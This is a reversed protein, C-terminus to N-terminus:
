FDELPMGLRLMVPRCEQAIAHKTEESFEAAREARISPPEGNSHIDHIGVAALSKVATEEPSVTFSAYEITAQRHSPVTELGDLCDGVQRTWHRAAVVARSVGEEQAYTEVTRGDWWLSMGQFFQVKLLSEIVRGPHRVVHHFAARPFAHALAEVRATNLTNKLVVTGARQNSLRLQQMRRNLAGPNLDHADTAVLRRKLIRQNEASIGVEELLRQAEGSPRTYRIPVSPVYRLMGVLPTMAPIAAAARPFTQLNSFTNLYTQYVTTGSRGSGVIFLLNPTGEGPGTM